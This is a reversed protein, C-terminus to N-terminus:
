KVEEATFQRINIKFLAAFAKRAEYESKYEGEAILGENLYIKYKNMTKM